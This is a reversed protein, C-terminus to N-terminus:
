RAEARQAIRRVQNPNFMGGSRTTLGEDHLAAAITRYSADKKRMTTVIRVVVAEDSAEVLGGREARLGYAPRGGIYGGAARKAERGAIMRGRILTREYQGFAGLMQRMLVRTPDDGDTDPESVSLVRAGIAQLGQVTTEQLIFDRALRDLRYVVLATADGAEIRALATALGLRTDLGNSGSQGEDSYMAVLRLGKTRCYARVAQEQVDLGFGDVQEATSVRLYGFVKQRAAM